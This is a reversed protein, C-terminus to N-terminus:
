RNPEGLLEQTFMLGFLTGQAIVVEPTRFDDAQDDIEDTVVEAADSIGALVSEEFSREEASEQTTTGGTGVSIIISSEPESAAGAFEEIFAAAGAVVFREFFFRDVSTALGTTGDAPDVAVASISTTSGDEFVLTSFNLILVDDRQTFSGILRRGNLEGGVLEALVPGPKTSVARTVMRAFLIDGPHVLREVQQPAMQQSAPAGVTSGVQPSAPLATTQGQAPSSPVFFVVADSEQPQWGGILGGIQSQMRNALGQDAQIWLPQPIADPPPPPPVEVVPIPRLPPAIPAALNTRRPLVPADPDEPASEVIKPVPAPPLPLTLDTDIQLQGQLVPVFATGRELARQAERENFDSLITEYFPSGLEGPISQVQPTSTVRAGTRVTEQDSIAVYSVSLGVIAVGIAFIGLFRTKPDRAQAALGAALKSKEAM